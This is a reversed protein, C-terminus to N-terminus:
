KWIKFHKDHSASAVLGNVNSVALASVVKDHAHLSMTKNEGFNWLVLTEHCGIVLLPYFPHFVCTIFKNASTANLEHICEGKSGSGVTWVRVLDDSLSALHKGSSDWCVSRVNNNHGQLKLICGLTEVDLISILNDVAAALLRGLGPQFRMQTVGGKFVGATSGNKISWYRIESNDCSCILDEKSPHFDLSMVTTAHGTFTRLSYGPNDVDWVRVTKDASSTGVHLMSPSFRVDTISQNHEELTSKMNFSETCWLNAKKDQGGTAFLKGDSSFHCCEVKHTSAMIHKIEKFSFGEGVRDRPEADDPSLFSEVNDSLSGEGALHDMDDLQNQASAHSGLGDTASMLSSKSSPVNQQLTPVSMVDGPTQTSPTSPSSASPGTTNAIGSSNAPGSSTAQKRKWGVQSKSAQDNGQFTSSMCGDIINGSGVKEHRQLRQFQQRSLTNQSFHQLQQNSKQDQQKLFMDSDLHPLMPSGAQSPTGVNSILDGLFNSRGDKGLGINKNLLARLRRSEFDSVSPPFSNQQAQLMLQQQPSLQNFAQSSQMLNNQHFLGSRLQDLGALPWGKLTLNSGGQNSGHGAIYSGESDVAQSRMMASTDSTIGQKLVCSQTYGPFLPNQNQVQVNGQLISLAALLTQRTAQGSTTAEVAKLLSAHNPELLQGVNRGVGHKITSDSLVDRQLPPKLRDEYMKTAMANSAALNPRMLPDNSILSSTNGSVLPTGDSRQQHQQAHRQLLLQMQMQQNQNPIPSQHEQRKQMEQAKSQQSKIYFAAAESHKQDTRGIFIDWFVSWWEFLFSNPADIAVFETPVNAEAQFVSASTHLQRKVLYNYIYVDLMKDAEWNTISM